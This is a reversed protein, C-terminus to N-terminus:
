NVEFSKISFDEDFFEERIIGKKLYKKLQHCRRNALIIDNFPEHNIIRSIILGINAWVM